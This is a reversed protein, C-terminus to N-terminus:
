LSLIYLNSLEGMLWKMRVNWSGLREATERNKDVLAQYDEVHEIVDAILEEASIKDSLEIVPNYGIFDILEQPAHGVMVMRSFMCEWYRQTLTEIDAAIEPQTISRPLAITVKANGMADYLQENTYIFKGNQKTCVHNLSCNKNDFVSKLQNAKFVKDNSRGFELLDINRDKLLKGKQYVSDDVAEPCWIVNIKQWGKNKGSFREQMKGATQRSSFIAIKVQHRRLWECTKEFYCPWCDWFMPVIEYRAYDPFTDFFLSVPEVFRLRAEKKSKWITPLEWRFAVGHMCKPPYHSKAVDGGLRKWGEFPALKFNLYGPHIYPPVAKITKKRKNM